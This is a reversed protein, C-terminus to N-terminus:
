FKVLSTSIRFYPQKSLLEFRRQEVMHNYFLSETQKQIYQSLEVSKKKNTLFVIVAKDDYLLVKDVFMNIIMKQYQLDNINSNKMEELLFKVKDLLLNDYPAEITLIETELRNIVIKIDNMKNYIDKRIDEDTCTSLANLLNDKKNNESILKNKLEKIGKYEKEKRAIKEVENMITDINKPNKLFTQTEEVVLKEIIEKYVPQKKCDHLKRGKCGYYNYKGKKSSYGTMMENCYGCFMKQTLLYEKFAKRRGPAEKNKSIIEQVKYFLDDSIIRPIRIPMENGKFTYIGIYKKNKLMREITSDRFKKGKSTKYGKENFYKVISAKSYGNAYRKFMEEVIPATEEDKKFQKTEKDVIFGLPVNNGITLSKSANNALGNAIREAYDNSYFEAVLQYIGKMFIGSANTTLEECTSLVIVGNKELEAQANISVQMSRAFRDLKFVIVYKFNGTKSDELMKKFSPRNGNRGSQAEDIYEGIINLKKRKAYELCKKRQVEITQTDQSISSFRGYFVANNM